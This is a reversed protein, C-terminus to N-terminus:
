PWIERDRNIPWKNANMPGYPLFIFSLLSGCSQRRKHPLILELGDALFCKVQM